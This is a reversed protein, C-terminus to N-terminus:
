IGLEKDLESRRLAERTENEIQRGQNQEQIVRLRKLDKKM